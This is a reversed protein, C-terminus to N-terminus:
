RYITERKVEWTIKQCTSDYCLQHIFDIYSIAAHVLKILVESVSEPFLDDFIGSIM